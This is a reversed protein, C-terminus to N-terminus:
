LFFEGIRFGRDACRSGSVSTGARYLRVMRLATAKFHLSITSLRSCEVALRITIQPM